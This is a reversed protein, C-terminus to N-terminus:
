RGSGSRTSTTRAARAAPSGSGCTAAATPTTACISASRSLIPSGPKSNSSSFYVDLTGTANQIDIWVHYHTADNLVVGSPVVEVSSVSGNVDFGIQNDGNDPTGNHTDFEIAASPSIGAYGLGTGESGIAGTGVGQMAFTLGDAGSTGDGTHIWFEFYVEVVSGAQPRYATNYWASGRERDKNDTVGLLCNTWRADNNLTISGQNSCFDTMYSITYDQGFAATPLFLLAALAARTSHAM